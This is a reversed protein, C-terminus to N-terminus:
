RDLQEPISAGAREQHLPEVEDPAEEQEPEADRVTVPQGGLDLPRVKRRVRGCRATGPHQDEKPLNGGTRAIGDRVEPTLQLIPEFAM